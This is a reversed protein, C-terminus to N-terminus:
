EAVVEVQGFGVDTDLVLTPSQATTGRGVHNVAHDVNWGDDHSGFLSTEGATVSASAVVFADDPVRVTLKGVGVSAGVKTRGPPLQLDSLDLELNGISQRYREHLAQVTTPHVTRDGIPGHLPVDVTAVALLIAAMVAGVAALWGVGGVFAGIAVAVGVLVVGAALAITWDVNVTDTADLVGLIGAGAILIGVVPLFVPVRRGAPAASGPRATGADPEGTAAAEGSRPRDREELQWWVIALGVALAALWGAGRGTWFGSGAIGFVLAVGMLVVGLTLWPRRDRVAEEVVSAGRREDPIVLWAAAYIILGSGGLLVLAAFAVRYVTPSLGFYAALGAAVGAVVRGETPRILRREADVSAAGAPDTTPTATDNM